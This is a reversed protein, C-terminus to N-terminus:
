LPIEPTHRWVATHRGKRLRGAAASMEADIGDDCCAL